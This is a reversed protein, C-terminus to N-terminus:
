NQSFAQNIIGHLAEGEKPGTKFLKTRPHLLKSYIVLLAISCLTVCVVLLFMILLLHEFSTVSLYGLSQPLQAFFKCYLQNHYFHKLIVAFVLICSCEFFYLTFNIINVKLMSKFKQSPLSTPILFSIFIFIFKDHAQKVKFEDVFGQFLIFSILMKIVVPVFFLGPTNIFAIVYVMVKTVIMSSWMFLLIPTGLSAMPRLSRRHRNHYKLIAHLMTVFSIFMTGIVYTKFNVGFSKFDKEVLWKFRIILILTIILQGFSEMVM